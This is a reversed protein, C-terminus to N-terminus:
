PQPMKSSVFPQDAWVEEYAALVHAVATEWSNERATKLAQRGMEARLDGNLMIGIRGAVADADEPNEVVFGNEGERVVDRAGVRGSILVPLGAAMAELVVMGFTDFRSLMVYLDGAAYFEPLKDRAVAGAFVVADGLGLDRALRGYAKRDGRGIVLLRFRSAPERKRLSALGRLIHDLGKVAFNMSVFLILPEDAGIGYRGRIERRCRERDPKAYATADIGPRVVKVRAPDVPYEGLFIKRTLESVALFRRCGGESVLRDEVRALARDFLSMRRRRV